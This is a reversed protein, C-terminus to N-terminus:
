PEPKGVTIVRGTYGALFRTIEIRAGAQLHPQRGSPNNLLFASPEEGQVEAGVVVVLHGGRKTVPASTGIQHSVSAIVMQGGRLASVIEFPKAPRAEAELGAANCLAALSKHIWGIEEVQGDPKHQIRYGDIKLGARAWEVLPLHPGGLAEICMKVCVVGCGRDVWYAYEQPTQAGSEAWRPDEEPLIVGDFILAALDPSAVQAYYPVSYPLRITEV